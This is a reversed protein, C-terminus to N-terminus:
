GGVRTEIYQEEGYGEFIPHLWAKWRLGSWLTIKIGKEPKHTKDSQKTAKRLYIAISTKENKEKISFQGWMEQTVEWM